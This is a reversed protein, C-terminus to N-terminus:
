SGFCNALDEHIKMRRQLCVYNTSSGGLYRGVGLPIYWKYNPNGVKSILPQHIALVLQLCHKSPGSFMTSYWKDCPYIKQQIASSLWILNRFCCREEQSMSVIYLWSVLWRPCCLLFSSLGTVVASLMILRGDSISASLHSMSRLGSCNQFLLFWCWLCSCKRPGTALGKLDGGYRTPVIVLSSLSPSIGLCNFTRNIFGATDSHAPCCRHHKMRLCVPLHRERGISYTSYWPRRPYM